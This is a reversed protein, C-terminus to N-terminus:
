IWTYTGEVRLGMAPLDAIRHLRSGGLQHSTHLVHPAHDVFLWTGIHGPMAQGPEYMLVADGDQPADTRQGLQACYAAIAQAQDGARLPRLRDVLVTRGFLERQVLAVLDACDLHRPSYPLGIFRDLQHM